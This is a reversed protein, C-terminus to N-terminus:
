LINNLVIIKLFLYNSKSLLNYSYNYFNDDKSIQNTKEVSNNLYNSSKPHEIFKIISSQNIKCSFDNKNFNNRFDEM